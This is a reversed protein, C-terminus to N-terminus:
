VKESLYYQSVFRRPKRSILKLTFYDLFFGFQSTILEHINILYSLTDYLGQMDHKVARKTNRM